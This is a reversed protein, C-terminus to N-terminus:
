AAMTLNNPWIRAPRPFATIISGFGSKIGGFESDLVANKKNIGEAQQNRSRQGIKKDTVKRGEQHSDFGTNKIYTY